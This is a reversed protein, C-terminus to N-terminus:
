KSVRDHPIEEYLKNSFEITPINKIDKLEMSSIIYQNKEGENNLLTICVELYPKDIGYVPFVELIEIKSLEVNEMIEEISLSFEHRKVYATPVSVAIEKNSFQLVILYKIGTNTYRINKLVM